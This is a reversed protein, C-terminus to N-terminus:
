RPVGRDRHASLAALTMLLVLAPGSGRCLLGNTLEGVFPKQCGDNGVSAVHCRQNTAVGSVNELRGRLSGPLVKRRSRVWTRNSMPQTPLPTRMATKWFSRPPADTQGACDVGVPDPDRDNAAPELTEESVALPNAAVASLGLDGWISRRKALSGRKKKVEVVFPRTPTEYVPEKSLVSGNEPDM